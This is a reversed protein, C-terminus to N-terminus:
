VVLQVLDACAHVVAEIGPQSGARMTATYVTGANLTGAQGKSADFDKNLLTQKLAQLDFHERGTANLFQQAPTRRDDGWQDPGNHDYNTEVLYWRGVDADIRWVDIDRNDRLRTVVAGEGSRVGAVIFYSPAALQIITAMALAEDFTTADQAIIRLASFTSARQRVFVDWANVILSGVDREDQSLTFAGPRVATNFGVMGIFSVSSFLTQNGREWDVVAVLDEMIPKLELDYDLNRGHIISGNQLEAVISTCAKHGKYSSAHLASPGSNYATLDYWLNVAALKPWPIGTVSSIGQLEQYQEEPFWKEVQAQELAIIVEVIYRLDKYKPDTEFEHWAAQLEKTFLAAVSNWRFHPAEDLNVKVRPPVREIPHQCDAAHAASLLLAALSLKLM